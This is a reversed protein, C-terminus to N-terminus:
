FSTVPIQSYELMNSNTCILIKQTVKSATVAICDKVMKYFEDYLVLAKQVETKPKQLTDCKRDNFVCEETANCNKVFIHVENLLNFKLIM